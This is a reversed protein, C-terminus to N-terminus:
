ASVQHDRAFSMQYIFYLPQVDLLRGAQYLVPGFADDPQWGLLQALVADRPAEIPNFVDAGEPAKSKVMLLVTVSERGAQRVANLVGNAGYTAGAPLVYAAPMKDVPPRTLSSLSLLGAVHTLQAPSIEGLRTITASVLDTM